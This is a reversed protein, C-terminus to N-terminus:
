EKVCRFGVHFLSTNVATSSKGFLTYGHCWSPECLFSGGRLIKASNESPKENPPISKTDWDSTWEWVNGSIDALGLASTGYEGVPSTYQFGDEVKNTVPFLGQWVNARYKGNQQIENDGWPYNTNVKGGGRAAYEWELETPLRKKAWECYALVDKYAVQTVPHTDEAKAKEKGFPFAWNAGKVLEWTKKEINFVGADDYIEAETKYNTATIFARFEVITVPHQDIWFSPIQETKGQWQFSGAPVQIMGGYQAEKAFSATSEKAKKQCSFLLLLLSLLYLYKM